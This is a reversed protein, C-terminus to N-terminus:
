VDANGRAKRYEILASEVEFKLTSFLEASQTETLGTVDLNFLTRAYEYRRERHEFDSHAIYPPRTM